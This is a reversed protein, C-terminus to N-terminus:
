KPIGLRRILTLRGIELKKLWLILQWPLTGQAIPFFSFILLKHDFNRGGIFIQRFYNRHIM